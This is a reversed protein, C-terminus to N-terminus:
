LDSVRVLAEVRHGNSSVHALNPPIMTNILQAVELKRLVGLVLPLYAVSSLRRIWVTM